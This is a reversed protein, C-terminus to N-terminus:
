KSIQLSPIVGIDSPHVEPHPEDQGVAHPPHPPHPPNKNTMACTTAHLVHANSALHHFPHFPPVAHPPHPPHPPNKNTHHKYEVYVPVVEALPPDHHVQTFAQDAQSLPCTTKIMHHYCFKIHFKRSKKGYNNRKTEKSEKKLIDSARIDFSSSDKLVICTENQFISVVRSFM